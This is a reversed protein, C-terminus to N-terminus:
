LRSNLWIAEVFRYRQTNDHVRPVIFDVEPQYGLVAQDLQQIQNNTVVFRFKRIVANDSKRSVQLEYNGDNATWDKLVFPKSNAQKNSAHPYYLFVKKQKYHHHDILGMDERSHAIVRGQYTLMVRFGDSRMGAPLDQGGVWLNLEPFPQGDAEAEFKLFGYLSWLGLFRFQKEPNFPDSGGSTEELLVPIRSVPKGDVLFVINYTGPTKVDFYAPGKELLRAFVADRMQAKPHFEYSKIVKNDSDLLAVAANIDEEPAFALDIKSVRIQGSSDDFSMNLMSEYTVAPQNGALVVSVGTVLISILIARFCANM